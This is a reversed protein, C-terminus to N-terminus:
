HKRTKKGKARIKNKLSRGGQSAFTNTMNTFASEPNQVGQSITSSNIQKALSGMAYDIITKAAVSVNEPLGEGSHMSEQPESTKPGTENSTQAGTEDSVQAGTEENTQAGTEENTQAGTEDSVQDGTEENTQDGTEENTQAGTEENTQAGTEENTQAGTEENTQAGTEENTQAGTEDSTQAGTEDSTQSASTQEPAGEEQETKVEALFPSAEAQSDTVEPIEELAKQTSETQQTGSEETTQVNSTQQTGSEETTQVNSTQQPGNEETTQVNSTQQPGNEETTVGEEKETKVEALFPSEEAQSDTVEHTGELAKQTSETQEPTNETTTEKELLPQQTGSENENNTSSTELQSLSEPLPKQILDSVGDKKISNSLHIKSLKSLTEPPLDPPFSDKDLLKKENSSIAFPNEEQKEKLNKETDKNEEQGGKFNKLSKNRLNVHSSKRFSKNKNTEKKKYRKLSQKNKRYLKSIKGKTLKM